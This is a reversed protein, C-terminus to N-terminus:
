CKTESEMDIIRSEKHAGTYSIYQFVCPSAKLYLYDMRWLFVFSRESRWLLNVM